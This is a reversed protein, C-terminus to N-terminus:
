PKPYADKVPQIIDTKWAELGHHFIYDLQEQLPPYENARNYKYGNNEEDLQRALENEAWITLTDEIEKPTLDVKVGNVIKHTPAEFSSKIEELTQAM